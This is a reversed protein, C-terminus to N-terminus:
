VKIIILRPVGGEEIVELELPSNGLPELASVSERVKTLAELRKGYEEAVKGVEGLELEPDPNVAVRVAGLDAVQYKSGTPSAGWLLAEISKIAEVRAKLSAKRSALTEVQSKLSNIERDLHELLEKVSNFRRLGLAQGTM